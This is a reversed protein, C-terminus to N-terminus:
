APSPARERIPMHILGAFVGLAVATWWAPEYGGLADYIRGGLWAGLLSGIQHSLFTLGALTSLHTMGQTQAMLGMTLPATSLWLPGTVASFACVGTESVPALIFVSIVAARLFRIAALSRKKSRHQGLWGSGFSGAINFLGILALAAAGAEAAVGLDSIYSPLHTQIFAVHFGCVFFGVFLCLCSRDRFARDIAARLDVGSGGATAVSGRAIPIAAPVILLYLAAIIRVGDRWRGAEIPMAMFPAGCVMGLSAAAATGWSSAAGIGGIM